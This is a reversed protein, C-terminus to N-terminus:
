SNIQPIINNKKAMQLPINYLFHMLKCLVDDAGVKVWLMPKHSKM